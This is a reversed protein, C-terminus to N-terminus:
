THAVTITYTVTTGVNGTDGVAVCYAGAPAGSAPIQATTSAATEVSFGPILSCTGTTSPNGLGVGLKITSPPGASVLTININGGGSTVTFNHSKLDFVGNVPPNLTGTFTETTVTANAVVTSPSSTSSGGCAAAAAALAIVALRKM